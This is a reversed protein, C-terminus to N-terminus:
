PPTDASTAAFAARRRGVSSACLWACPAGVQRELDLLEPHQPQCPVLRLEGFRRIRVRVDPSTTPTRVPM